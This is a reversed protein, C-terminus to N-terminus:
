RQPFTVGFLNSHLLDPDEAEHPFRERLERV